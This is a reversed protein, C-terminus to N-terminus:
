VCRQGAGSGVRAAVVAVLSRRNFRAHVVSHGGRMTVFAAMYARPVRMGAHNCGSANLLHVGCDGARKERARGVGM